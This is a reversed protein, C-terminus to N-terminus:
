WLWVILGFFVGGIPEIRRNGAISRQALKIGPCFFSNGLVACSFRPLKLRQLQGPNRLRRREQLSRTLKM